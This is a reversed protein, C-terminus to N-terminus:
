ELQLLRKATVVAEFADAGYGDAGIREAWESTVPGGGVMVKVQPRLGARALEKIVDGQAHMTTTLLCSIGVIDPTYRRVADIFVSASVDMGLDYVQFGKAMFLTAVITKGIDHLDGAATGIVLCGMPKRKIGECRLKELLISSGVKMAEAAMVLDPLFLEGRGFAEGVFSIGSNLGEDLAVLPNVGMEVANYALQEADPSSDEIVAQRLKKLLNIEQIDM